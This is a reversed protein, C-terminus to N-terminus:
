GRSILKRSEVAMDAYVGFETLAKLIGVEIAGLSGGEPFVFTTRM